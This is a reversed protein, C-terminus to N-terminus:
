SWGYGPWCYPWVTPGAGLSYWDVGHNGCASNAIATAGAGVAIMLTAIGVILDYPWALDVGPIAWLFAALAATSGMAAEIAETLCGNTYVTFGNSLGRELFIWCGGGGGGGGGVLLLPSPTGGQTSSMIQPHQQALRQLDAVLAQTGGVDFAALAARAASSASYAPSATSPAAASVSQAGALATLSAVCTAAVLVYRLPTTAFQRWRQGIM